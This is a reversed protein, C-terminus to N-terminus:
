TLRQISDVVRRAVHDWTCSALARARAAAGLKARLLPDQLLWRTATVLAADDGAPVLLGGPGVLGPLDGIDSTVVPVGAMAAQVLKLPCFWFFEAPPYPAIMLTAADLERAADRESLAGTCSFHAALGAEAASAMVAEAGSGGGIIRVEFPVDAEALSRALPVLRGAGHWPRANGLFVLRPPEAALRAPEPHLAADAGNPHVEVGNSRGRLRAAWAALPHSVALILSAERLLRLEAAREAPTIARGRHEAAELLLPANLELAFPVEAAMCADLMAVHGISCREIVADAATDELLQAANASDFPRWGQVPNAPARRTALTVSHGLTRLAAVLARLHVAAGKTGDPAIGQDATVVLLKM